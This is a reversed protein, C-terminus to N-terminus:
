EKILAALTQLQRNSDFRLEAFKRGERGFALRKERDTILDALKKAMEDKDGKGILFGTSGDQVMEAVAGVDTAIIPLGSAMAEMVTVPTIEDVSSLLFIDANKLERAVEGSNVAGPMEVDFGMRKAIGSLECRLPGEGLIRYRVSRGPLFAAAKSVAEIAHSLNKEPVLRAVTLIMILDAARSHDAPSFLDLDVGLSLVEIKEAPCGMGTLQQRSYLSIAIIKDATRFLRRFAGGKERIGRRLDYGHFTVVYRSNLMEKLFAYQSGVTGFHVHIADYDLNLFPASRVCDDIFERLNRGQFLRRARGPKLLLGVFLNKLSVLIRCTRSESFPVRVLGIGEVPNQGLVRAAVTVEHGNGALWSAEQVVWTESVAPFIDTIICIKM